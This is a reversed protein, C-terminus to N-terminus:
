FNPGPKISLGFFLLVDLQVHVVLLGLFFPILLFNQIFKLLFPLMLPGSKEDSIVGLFKGLLSKSLKKARKALNFVYYHLVSVCQNSKFMNRLSRLSSVFKISM